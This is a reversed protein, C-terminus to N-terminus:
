ISIERIFVPVATPDGCSRKNFSNFIQGYKGGVWLKGADRSLDATLYLGVVSQPILVMWMRTENIDKDTKLANCRLLGDELGGARHEVTGGM